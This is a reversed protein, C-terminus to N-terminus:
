LSRVSSYSRTSSGPSHWLRTSSCGCNTESRLAWICARRTSPAQFRQHLRHIRTMPRPPLSRDPLPQLLRAGPYADGQAQVDPPSGRQQRRALASNTRCVGATGGSPAHAAHERARLGSNAKASRFCSLRAVCGRGMVRAFELGAKAACSAHRLRGPM